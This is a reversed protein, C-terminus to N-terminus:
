IDETSSHRNINIPYLKQFKYHKNNIAMCAFIDPFRKCFLINLADCRGTKIGNQVQTHVSCVEDSIGHSVM